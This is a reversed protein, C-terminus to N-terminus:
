MEIFNALAQEVLLVDNHHWPVSHVAHLDFTRVCLTEKHSKRSIYIIVSLSKDLSLSMEHM